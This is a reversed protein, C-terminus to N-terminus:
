ASTPSSCKQFPQRSSKHWFLPAPASFVVAVEPERGQEATVARVRCGETRDNAENTLRLRAGVSVPRKLVLLAGHANIEITHAKELFPTGKLTYGYVLLPIRIRARRTRRHDSKPIITTVARKSRRLETVALEAQKLCDLIKTM